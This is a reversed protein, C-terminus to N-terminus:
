VSINVLRFCIVQFDAPTEYVNIFEGVRETCKGSGDPSNLQTSPVEEFIDYPSLYCQLSVLHGGSRATLLGVNGHLITEVATANTALRSFVILLAHM